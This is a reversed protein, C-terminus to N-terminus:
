GAEVAAAAAEPAWPVLADPLVGGVQRVHTHAAQLLDLDRTLDAVRLRLVGHQRAGLLEGPGRAALDAEAIRLGDETSALLALREAEATPAHLLLCTGAVSGRGLRGRLQHLQALGFRDADLVVLLGLTPVDIGVEVVTTAVVVRTAGTRFREMVALKAEESLGGHLLEVGPGAQQAVTEAAHATQEGPARLPCVVLAQATNAAVASLAERLGGVAVRTTVAARGPPKDAIRSVALDGFATLALTRPIPTATMLLLHPRHGDPAKDVLASRQEVGFKHQEDIIVLRLRAFRVADTLLAHTGILLHCTGDTVAALLAPREGAPTGGTLSRVQVRSGALCAAIFRAHQAALVATPALLAVQGGAAIVALATVLALATKGSGVDGQLLRYMPAAAQVDGRIEALAAAQGPTLVFPLRALARQHVEDNWAVATGPAAIVAQRRAHLIWALALLEREALIRRAAEHAEADVPQHVTRLHAQWGAPPLRGAPDEALPLYTALVQALLTAFAREGVGEPLRYAVRCATEEVLPAALGDPLHRFSPHLLLTAQKADTTGEWLFWEGPMLIRRLYGANFFRATLPMGDGRVLRAELAMGRGGRGFRPSAALLRARLRVAAAAPLPGTEALPPPLGRLRPFTHLVDWVTRWGAAALAAARAPGVGHLFQLSDTLAPM